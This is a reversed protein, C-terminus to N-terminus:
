LDASLYGRLFLFNNEDSVVIGNNLVQQFPNNRGTLSTNLFFQKKM